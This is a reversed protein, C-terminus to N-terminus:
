KGGKQLEEFITIVVAVIATIVLIGIAILLAVWIPAFVVWWTINAVGTVKLVALIFTFVWLWPFSNKTQKKYNM